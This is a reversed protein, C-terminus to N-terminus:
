KIFILQTISSEKSQENSFLLGRYLVAIIIIFILIFKFFLWGKLKNIVCFILSILGFIAIFLVMNIMILFSLKDWLPINKISSFMSFNISILSFISIFIGMFTLINSYLQNEIGHINEGIEKVKKNQKNIKDIRIKELKIKEQYFYSFINPFLDYIRQIVTQGKFSYGIDNKKIIEKKVLNEIYSNVKTEDHEFFMIIQEKFFLYIDDGNSDKVIIGNGHAYLLYYVQHIDLLTKHKEQYLFYNDIILKENIKFIDNSISINKEEWLKKRENDSCKLINLVEEPM